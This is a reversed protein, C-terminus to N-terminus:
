ILSVNSFSQIRTANSRQENFFLIEENVRWRVDLYRPIPHTGYPVSLPFNLVIGYFPRVGPLNHTWRHHQRSVQGLDAVFFSEDGGVVSSKDLKAIHNEITHDILRAPTPKRYVLTRLAPKAPIINDRPAPLLDMIASFFRSLLVPCFQLTKFHSHM